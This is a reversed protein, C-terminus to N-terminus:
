QPNRLLWLGASIAWLTHLLVVSGFGHVTMPLAHMALFGIPLLGALLGVIAAALASRSRPRRDDRTLLAIAWTVSSVSLGLVDVTALTENAIRCLRLLTGLPALDGGDAYATGLSPVIFGNILGAGIGAGTGILLAVTGIRVLLRERGLRDAVALFAAALLASLTLLIGHVPRTGHLGHGAEEVFEALSHAHSVPHMAMFGVALISTAILCWGAARSSTPLTVSPLPSEPM